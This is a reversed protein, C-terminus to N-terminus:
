RRHIAAKIKEVMEAGLETLMDPPLDDINYIYEYWCRCNVEEAPETIATTYGASGPKVLGKREYATGPLLYVRKDRDKHKLRYDYGMEEWHSHWIAAIAGSQEALVRSVNSSLKHGQDILVRREEYPLSRFDKAMTEAQQRVQPSATGGDPVSSAWGSFRRMTAAIMEDRRLKILDASTMVLRDLERRLAPQVREIGFRSVGPHLKILRSKLLRTYTDTLTREVQKEREDTSPLSAILHQRLIRQWKEMRAKSDYGHATFDAIAERLYDFFTKRREGM